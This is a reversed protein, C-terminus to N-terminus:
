KENGRMMKAIHRNSVMIGAIPIGVFMGFLVILIGSMKRVGEM